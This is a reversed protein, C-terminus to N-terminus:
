LHGVLRGLRGHAYQGAPLRSFVLGHSTLRALVDEIARSDTHNPSGIYGSDYSVGAYGYRQPQPPTEAVLGARRLVRRLRSRDVEGQQLLLQDLVQRDEPSLAERAALVRERTFLGDVLLRVVEAKPLPKGAPRPIGNTEAIIRLTAVNYGDLLETLNEAM